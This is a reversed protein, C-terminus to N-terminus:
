ASVRSQEAKAIQEDKSISLDLTKRARELDQKLASIENSSASVQARLAIIEADKTNGGTEPTRGLLYDITCDFFNAVKILKEPTVKSKGTVAHNLTRPDIGLKIALQRQSMNQDKLLASVNTGFTSKHRQIEVTFGEM